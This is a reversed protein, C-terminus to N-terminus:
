AWNPETTVPVLSLESWYQKKQSGGVEEFNFYLGHLKGGALM